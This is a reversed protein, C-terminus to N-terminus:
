NITDTGQLQVVYTIPQIGRYYSDQDKVFISHLAKTDYVHM